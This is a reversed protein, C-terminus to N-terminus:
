AGLTTPYWKEVNQKLLAAFSGSMPLGLPNGVAAGPGLSVVHGLRLPEYQSPAFGRLEDLLARGLYKGQRLAYSATSPVEGGTAHRVYSCDGAAFVAAQGQVRLYRDVVVCGHENTPLGCAKLFDPAKSGTTWVLTSARLVRDGTVYLAQEEVREVTTNVYISVLRRDLVKMAEKHAWAGFSSLLLSSSELLAIRVENRPIGYTQALQGVWDALEGAFQCGIFGGGVIAFTLLIRRAISDHTHQAKEFCAIIHERLRVAESFTRLPLAFTCAGTVSGCDIQTGLAIILREYEIGRGDELFVKRWLPDVHSVRGRVQQVARGLLIEDLPITVEEDSVGATAALHLLAVHQHYANQDVLTVRARDEHDAIAQGLEIAVHLGAYGAGLIVIHM